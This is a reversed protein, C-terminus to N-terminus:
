PPHVHCHIVAQCKMPPLYLTPTLGPLLSSHSITEDRYKIARQRSTQRMARGWIGSDMTIYLAVRTTIERKKFSKAWARMMGRLGPHVGVVEHPSCVDRLLFICPFGGTKELYRIWFRLVVAGSGRIVRVMNINTQQLHVLLVLHQSHPLQM